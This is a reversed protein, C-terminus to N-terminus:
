NTFLGLHIDFWSVINVFADSEAETSVIPHSNGEYTVLRAPVNRSRLAKYYQEGQKPPVRRDNLGLMIQLPAKVKDIHAIPSKNFMQSLQEANPVVTHDFPLGCEVMVWDPIDTVGIMNTLNTVPNRCTGAKYFEPYQGILHTTLFGGHSGGFVAVKNGDVRGSQVVSEAAAQVDKVDQDGIRGPLSRLNNEGFGFSGRYNVMLVAFGCTSFGATYRMFSTTFVSHPGGHPFVILPPKEGQDVPMVLIAEYDLKDYKPHTRDDTPILTLVEYQSDTLPTPQGDIPTLNVESGTAPLDAVAMYQPQNPSSCCFVIKDKNVDMVEFSKNGPTITKMTKEQVDFMLGVVSSRWVTSTVLRCSDTSWCRKPLGLVHLGPFEGAAPAAVIDCVVNREGSAWDYIMLRSSQMHPGGIENDLYVLKSQDPSVRISRCSREDESVMKLESSKFDLYYIGSRRIPCYILGPRYPNIDWGVFLVGSDSPAWSAQGLFLDEPVDSLVRIDGSELDLICIVSLHKSLLQEGWDEKYFHETGRSIEEEKDKDKDKKEPEFYSVSKPLKKEAIYLLSKESYSWAFSGFQEDNEYIKGHKSQASADICQSKFTGEWIEIFYKDEDKKTVKKVVARLSGSPSEENWLENTIERNPSRFDVSVSGSQGSLLYDRSFKVKEKRELDHQSWQTNLITQNKNSLNSICASVPEPFRILQRYVDVIKNVRHGM